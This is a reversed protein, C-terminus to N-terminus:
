RRGLVRIRFSRGPHPTPLGKIKRNTLVYGPPHLALEVDHLITAMATVALFEALHSGICRHTGLGYPMYAGPQQHENRPPEFRDIDFSEPDPFYAEMHHALTFELIVQRGAPVTCGVFEFANSM